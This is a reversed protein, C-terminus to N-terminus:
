CSIPHSVILCSKDKEYNTLQRNLDTVQEECEKWNMHIKKNESVSERVQKKMREEHNKMIEM